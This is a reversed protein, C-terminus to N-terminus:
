PEARRGPLRLLSAWGLSGSCTTLAVAVTLLCNCHGGQGLSGKGESRKWSTLVQQCPSTPTSENLPLAPCRSLLASACGHVHFLIFSIPKYVIRSWVAKWCSEQLTEKGFGSHWAPTEPDPAKLSTKLKCLVPHKRDRWAMLFKQRTSMEWILYMFLHHLCGLRVCIRSHVALGKCAAVSRHLQRGFTAALDLLRRRLHHVIHLHLVDRREM